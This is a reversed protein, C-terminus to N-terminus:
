CCGGGALVKTRILSKARVYPVRNSEFIGFVILQDGVKTKVNRGAVIKLPHESVDQLMFSGNAFSEVVLGYIVVSKGSFHVPDSYLEAIIPFADAKPEQASQALLASGKLLAACTVLVASLSRTM